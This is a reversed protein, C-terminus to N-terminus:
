RVAFSLKSTIIIAWVKNVDFHLHVCRCCIVDSSGLVVGRETGRKSTQTDGLKAKKVLVLVQSPTVNLTPAVAPLFM